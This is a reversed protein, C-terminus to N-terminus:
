PCRPHIAPRIRTQCRRTERTAPEGSRPKRQGFGGEDTLTRARGAPQSKAPKRYPIRPCPTRCSTRPRSVRFRPTSSDASGSLPPTAPGRTAHVAAVTHRTHKRTRRHHPHHPAPQRRLPSVAPSRPRPQRTRGRIPTRHDPTRAELLAVGSHTVVVQPFEPTSMVGPVGHSVAVRARRRGQACRGRIPSVTASQM